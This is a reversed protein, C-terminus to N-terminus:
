VNTAPHACQVGGCNSNRKLFFSLVQLVKTTWLFLERIGQFKLVLVRFLLHSPLSWSPKPWPPSLFFLICRGLICRSFPWIRWMGQINSINRSNEPLSAAVHWSQVQLNSPLQLGESEWFISHSCAVLSKAELLQTMICVLSKRTALLNFDMNCSVVTVSCHCASLQKTNQAVVCSAWCHCRSVQLSSRQRASKPGLHLSSSTSSRLAMPATSDLRQVLCNLLERLWSLDPWRSFKALNSCLLPFNFSLNLCWKSLTLGAWDHSYRTNYIMNLAPFSATILCSGHSNWKGSGFDSTLWQNMSWFEITPVRDVWSKWGWETLSDYATWLLGLFVGLLNLTFFWPQRHLLFIRMAEIDM